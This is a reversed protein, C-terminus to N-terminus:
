QNTPFVYFCTVIISASLQIVQIDCQVKSKFVSYGFILSFISFISCITMKSPPFFVGIDFCSVIINASGQCM